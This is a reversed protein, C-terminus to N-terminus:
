WIKLQNYLLEKVDQDRPKKLLQNIPTKDLLSSGLIQLVEYTSYETKLNQRIIAVLTYTIVAIYVQTKVANETTGWFSKIKLHQKIWKFFLEVKWRHKYLAAIEDPKLNLNNTLFVFNRDQEKDHFKIRRIKEPYDKNSYYGKLEGTQDCKVGTKKNVTASYQRKFQLNNKARIVFFSKSENIVFLREFDLYARDFVYFSGPEYVIQDMAQVDHVSGATLHMFVPISTRVDYQTHLKIAGKARRFTAWCFVNLCLDITTSDFAYVSNSFSFQTKDESICIKRAEAILHYAFDQYIKCDRNANSKGLNARSVGKGFGLHYAKASHANVTLVLDSLSDRNSLQGYMMCLLQNWCTFHRVRYDGSYKSVITDFARQPLFSCLQSFVYKGKNM